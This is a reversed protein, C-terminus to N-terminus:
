DDIFILNSGILVDDQYHPLLRVKGCEFQQSKVKTFISEDGNVTLIQMAGYWVSFVGPTIQSSYKSSPDSVEIGYANVKKAILNGHKTFGTEWVPNGGNWGSNTYAFGGANMTYITTSTELTPADHMYHKVSGDSMKVSTSYVGLANTILENFALVSQVSGNLTENLTQKITNIILSERSTLPNSTAYGSSTETEGQGKIATNGNLTYTVNTLITDHEVGDKDKFKIVDTPFLHPVSKMVCEYPRYTFGGVSDYIANCVDQYDHQILNNNEIKFAYADDGALYVNSEGDVVEVGSIVIDNELMDSSYRESPTVKFMTTKDTPYEYWKLALRGEWDIFACTATLEAIWQIIQRYTCDGVPSQQIVYDYNPRDSIDTGLPVNCITCTQSLMAGVTMPFTFLSWDVKKDFQVMRDLASLSITSLARAPEDVTFYGLPVYHTLIEGGADAEYTSIGIRVFLEGGEFKVNKFQGDRNDLILSLESACASGLEIKSGSVSYRDVTLGGVMIDSETLTFTRDTGYFIIEATQRYGQLFLDLAEQNISFM